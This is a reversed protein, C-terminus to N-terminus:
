GIYQIILTIAAIHINGLFIIITTYFGVILTVNIITFYKLFM